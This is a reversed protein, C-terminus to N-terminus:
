QSCLGLYPPLAAWPNSHWNFNDHNIDNEEFLYNCAPVEEFQGM